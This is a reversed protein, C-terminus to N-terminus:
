AGVGLLNDLATPLEAWSELWAIRVGLHLLSSELAIEHEKEKPRITLWLNEGLIFEGRFEQSRHQHEQVANATCWALWRRLNLDSMSLGIFVLRQSQAHSLFVTQQWTHVTSSIRSYGSEPFVLGERSERGRQSNGCRPVVCGHLHFIPTSHRCDDSARLVRRFEDIPYGRGANTHIQEELALLTIILDLLGDANFTLVAQLPNGCRKARRLWKALALLTSDSFEKRFFELLKLSDAPKNRKPNSLGILLIAKLSSNDAKELIDRYLEDEIFAFFDDRTHGQVVMSNLGAQLWADLGWGMSTALNRFSADSLIQSTARNFVARTFDFWTPMIGASIGAGVCVSWEHSRIFGKYRLDTAAFSNHPMFFTPEVRIGFQFAFCRLGSTM